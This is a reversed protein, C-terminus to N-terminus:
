TVDLLVTVSSPYNLEAVVAAVILDVLPFQSNFTYRAFLSNWWGQEPESAAVERSKSATSTGVAAPTWEMARPPPTALPRQATEAERPAEAEDEQKLVEALVPVETGACICSVHQMGISRVPM